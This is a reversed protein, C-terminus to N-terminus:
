GDGGEAARGRRSPGDRMLAGLKKNGANRRARLDNVEAEVARRRGDAAHIRDIAALPEAGGGKRNVAAKVAEADDRIQQLGIM